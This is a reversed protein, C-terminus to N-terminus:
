DRSEAPHSSSQDVSATPSATQDEVTPADAPDGQLTVEVAGYAHVTVQCGAMPFTVRWRDRRTGSKDTFLRNLGDPDIQDYLPALEHSEIGTKAAVTEAVRQSIQEYDITNTTSEM